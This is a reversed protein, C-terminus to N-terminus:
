WFLCSLSIHYLSLSIGPQGGPLTMEGKLIETTAWGWLCGSFDNAEVAWSELRHMPFSILSHSNKLMKNNPCVRGIYLAVLNDM